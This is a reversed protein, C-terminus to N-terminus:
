GTIKPSRLRPVVKADATAMQPGYTVTYTGRLDDELSRLAFVAAEDGPDSEGEFRAVEDVVLAEPAYSRDAQKAHLREGEARFQDRYGAATMREVVQDITEMTSM